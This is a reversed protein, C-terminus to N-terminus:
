TQLNKCEPLPKTKPKHEKKQNNKTKQPKTHKTTTKKKKENKLKQSSFPNLAGAGRLVPTAGAPGARM